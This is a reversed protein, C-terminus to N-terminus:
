KPYEIRLHHINLLKKKFIKKISNINKFTIDANAFQNQEIQRDIVKEVLEGIIEADYKKLSRSAAEVSDAMMLVATEKSFPIPGPYRFISEDVEQDPFSKLFSLYFYQAKTTGHHTRIFDILADPLNNKKAIEIGKNVHGTIIKASDEFSLEDHPNVGTYQNEIFYMPMEMKGIDHYLAGTRVLLSSGGVALIAEEALNAVQLSHQFTGPARLALERLLPSNIDALEMLSVDSTFGFIKEFLYILPYSFLTLGASAGFWAIITWDINTFKGEQIVSIGSYSLSYAMFIIVVSFFLQSRNRLNIISFIAFIGGILQIFVFEYPNPALLGIILCTALHTFMAIRTDFFTRMMVPLICFPLLYISPINFKNALSAMLVMLCIILMVFTIRHNDYFIEARFLFFFIFLMLLCIGVLIFQGSLIFYFNSTAGLQALYESKLSNLITYSETDVMDGRSIIRQGKQKMDRILSINDFLEKKVKLSTKQDYFINQKLQDELISLLIEGDVDKRENVINQAYKYATQITFVDKLEVEEALNNHLIFISFNQSKHETLGNLKLVGREYIQKLLKEGEAYNAEYSAKNKKQDNWHKNFEQLYNKEIQAYVSEDLRFYPKFNKIIENQDAAIEEPLKNIAFDFPAILDEHLWPKGKQFEYKFKGEKPFLYVIFSISVLLLLVKYLDAHRDRFFSLFKKM